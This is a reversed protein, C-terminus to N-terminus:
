QPTPQRSEVLARVAESAQRLSCRHIERYCRVAYGNAGRDLLREVDAMTAEGRQPYRGARRMWMVHISTLAHAVIVLLLGAIVIKEYMTM